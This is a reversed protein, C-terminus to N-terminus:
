ENTVEEINKPNIANYAAILTAMSMRDKPRVGANYADLAEGLKKGEEVLRMVKDYTQLTTQPIRPGNTRQTEYAVRAMKTRAKSFTYGSFDGGDWDAVCEVLILMGEATLDERDHHQHRGNAFKFAMREFAPKFTKALEEWAERMGLRAQWILTSDVDLRKAM